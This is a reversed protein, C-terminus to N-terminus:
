VCVGRRMCVEEGISGCEGEGVGVMVSEMEEKMIVYGVLVLVLELELEKVRTGVGACVTTRNIWEDEGVEVGLLVWKGEKIVGYLLEVSVGVGV